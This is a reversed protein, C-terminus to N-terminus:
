AIGRESGIGELYGVLLMRFYVGPPVGPCFPSGGCICATAMFLLCARSTPYINVFTAADIGKCGELVHDPVTWTSSDIQGERSARPGVRKSGPTSRDVWGDSRIGVM